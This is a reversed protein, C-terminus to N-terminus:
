LDIQMAKKTESATGEKDLCAALTCVIFGVAFVTLIRNVPNRREFIMIRKLSLLIWTRKRHNNM